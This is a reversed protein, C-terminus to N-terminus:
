CETQFFPAPGRAALYEAGHVAASRPVRRGPCEPSVPGPLIRLQRLLLGQTYRLPRIQPNRQRLVLRRPVKVRPKRPIRPLTNPKINKHQFFTQKPAPPNAYRTRHRPSSSSILRQLPSTSTTPHLARPPRQSHHHGPFITRLSRNTHRLLRHRDMYYTAARTLKFFLRVM